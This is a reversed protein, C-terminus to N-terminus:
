ESSTGRIALAEKAAMQEAKKRTSGHGYALQKGDGDCVVVRIEGKKPDNSIM